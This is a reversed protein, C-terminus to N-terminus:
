NKCYVKGCIYCCLQNWIIGTCKYLYHLQFIHYIIPSMNCWAGPHVKGMHPKPVILDSKLVGNPCDPTPSDWLVSNRLIGLCGYTFKYHMPILEDELPKTKGFVSHFKRCVYNKEGYGGGVRMM